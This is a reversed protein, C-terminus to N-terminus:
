SRPCIKHALKSSHPKPLLSCSKHSALPQSGPRRMGARHFGAGKATKSCSEGLWAAECPTLGLAPAVASGKSESQPICLIGPARGRGRKRRRARGPWCLYQHEVRSSGQDRRECLLAQEGGARAPAPRPIHVHAGTIPIIPVTTLTCCARHICGPADPPETADRM